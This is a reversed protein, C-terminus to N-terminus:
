RAAINNDFRRSVLLKVSPMLRTQRLRSIHGTCNWRGTWVLQANQLAVAVIKGRWSCTLSRLSVVEETRVDQSLRGIVLGSACEEFLWWDDELPNAIGPLDVLASMAGYLLGRGEAWLRPRLNKVCRPHTRLITWLPTLKHRRSHESPASSSSSSSSSNCTTVQVPM